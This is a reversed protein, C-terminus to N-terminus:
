RGTQKREQVRQASPMRGFTCGGSKQIVLSATANGNIAAKAMDREKVYSAMFGAGFSDGAGTFDLSGDEIESKAAFPGCYAIEADGEKYLVGKGGLTVVVNRAGEGVLYEVAKEATRGPIISQLDEESAKIITSNRCLTGIVKKGYEEAVSHRVDSTAGGYGGLDVFVTKGMEHLKTVVGLDVEYDMPCIKFFETELYDPHIDEFRIVPAAKQYEVYKTGNERYVLLNTTTYAYPMIGRHDLVDIESIIGEMDNGYYTVIGVKRGQAAMVLSSYAAPSGLVPGITRNPFQITEKIITGIVVIDLNKAM